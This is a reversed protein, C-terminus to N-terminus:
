DDDEEPTATPTQTPGDVTWTFDMRGFNAGEANTLVWLTYKSGGTDPALADVRLEVTEGPKVEKPLFYSNVNEHVRDGAYYRYQYSTTWTTTGTNEMIWVLDFKEGPRKITGDEPSNSVWTAKDPLNQQPAPTAQTTGPLGAQPTTEGPLSMTPVAETVTPTLTPEPTSTQTATPMAAATQTLQVQVTEAAQTYVQNADLTPEADGGGCASLAIALTTLLLASAVFKKQYIM